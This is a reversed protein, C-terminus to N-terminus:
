LIGPQRQRGHAECGPAGSRSTGPDVAVTPPVPVTPVDRRARVSTWAATRASWWRRPASAPWRCAPACRRTRTAAPSRRPSRRGSETSHRACRLRCRWFPATWGSARPAARLLPSPSRTPSCTHFRRTRSRRATTAHPRRRRARCAPVCAARRRAVPAGRCRVNTSTTSLRVPADRPVRLATPHADDDTDSMSGAPQTAALDAPRQAHRNKLKQRSNSKPPTNSRPM